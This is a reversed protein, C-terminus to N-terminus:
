SLECNIVPPMIPLERPSLPIQGSGNIAVASVTLVPPPLKANLLIFPPAQTISLYDTGAKNDILRLGNYAAPWSLRAPIEANDAFVHLVNSSVAGLAPQDPRQDKGANYAIQFDLVKWIAEFMRMSNIVWKGQHPGEGQVAAAGKLARLVADTFQAVQNPLGWARDSEKTAVYLPADGKHKVGLPSSNVPGPNISKLAAVKGPASRCADIFFYKNRRERRATNEYFDRLDFSGKPFGLGAQAPDLDSALLAHVGQHEIGHGCFYFVGVNERHADCRKEWATIATEIEQMTTPAFDWDAEQKWLKQLHTQKVDADMDAAASILLDAYVVNRGPYRLESLVWQGFELASVTASSLEEDLGLAGVSTYHGVGIVLAVVGPNEAAQDIVKAKPM